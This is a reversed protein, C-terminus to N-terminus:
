SGGGRWGRVNWWSDSRGVTGRRRRQRRLLVPIHHIPTRDLEAPQPQILARRRVTHIARSRLRGTDPRGCDFPLRIAVTPFWIWGVHRQRSCKLGVTRLERWSFEVQRFIRMMVCWINEPPVNLIGNCHMWSWRAPNPLALLPVDSDSQEESHRSPSRNRTGNRRRFWSGPHDQTQLTM